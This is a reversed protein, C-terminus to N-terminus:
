EQHRGGRRHGSGRMRQAGHAALENMEEGVRRRVPVAREFVEDVANEDDAVAVDGLEAGGGCHQGLQRGARQEGVVAALQDQGAEDVGVDVVGLGVDDGAVALLQEGPQFFVGEGGFGAEGVRRVGGFDGSKEAVLQQLVAGGGCEGEGGHM